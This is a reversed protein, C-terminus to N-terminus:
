PIWYPETEEEPTYILKRVNSGNRDMLYIDKNGGRDSVFLLMSSDPSWAADTDNNPDNTINVPRLALPNQMDILYIDSGSGVGKSSTYAIWRGDPSWVPKYDDIGINQTLRETNSGDANILYIEQDGDRTSQFVIKDNQPAWAYATFANYGLLGVQNIRTLNTQLSSDINISMIDNKTSYEYSYILQRNDSSWASCAINLGFQKTINTLGSNDSNLLYVEWHGEFASAFAIRRGDPSIRPCFISQGTPAILRENSGDIDALYYNTTRFFTIKGSIDVPLPTIAPRISDNESDLPTILSRAEATATAQIPANVTTINGLYNFFATIGVGALGILAVFITANVPTLRFTARKYSGSHSSPITNKSKGM